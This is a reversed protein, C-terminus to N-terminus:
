PPQAVAQRCRQTPAPCVGVAAIAWTCMEGVSLLVLSALVACSPRMQRLEREASQFRSRPEGTALVLPPQNQRQAM